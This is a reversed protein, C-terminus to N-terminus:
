IEKAGDLIPIKSLKLEVGILSAKVMELLHGILGFGTIDTCATAEYEFFM